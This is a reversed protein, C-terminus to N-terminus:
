QITPDERGQIECHMKTRVISLSTATSLFPDCAALAGPYICYNALDGM